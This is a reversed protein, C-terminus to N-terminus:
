EFAADMSENKFYFVIFINFRFLREIYNEEKSDQLSCTYFEISEPM